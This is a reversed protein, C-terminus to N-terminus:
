KKRFVAYMSDDKKLEKYRKLELLEYDNSFMKVLELENYYTFRLCNFIEKKSGYWFTHFLLEKRKLNKKQNVFSKKLEDKKLHHLVKNSYICDFKRKTNIEVADLLLLDANKRRQKYFDLFVQSNDSGTVKFSKRLIDLDNGPGMGLELISSDKPLYTKLVNILESGDYGEVMKLYKKVNDVDDFYGLLIGGSLFQDLM